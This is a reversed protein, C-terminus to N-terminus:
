AKFVVLGFGDIWQVVGAGERELHHFVSQILPVHPRELHLARQIDSLSVGSAGEEWRQRIYARIREETEEPLWGLFLHLYPKLRGDAPNAWVQPEKGMDLLALAVWQDYFPRRTADGAILDQVQTDWGTPSAVGVIWVRQERLAKQTLRRFWAQWEDLGLPDMDFGERAMRGLRVLVGGALAWKGRGQKSPFRYVVSLARPMEQQPPALFAEGGWEEEQRRAEALPYLIDVGQPHPFSSLGEVQATFRSLFDRELLAAETALLPTKGLSRALALRENLSPRHQPCLLSPWEQQCDTCLPADCGRAVCSATLMSQPLLRQCSSCKGKVTMPPVTLPRVLGEPAWGKTSLLAQLEDRPIRVTGGIRVAPLIGQAVYRYVTKPALRLLRAVEEVTLLTTADQPSQEGTM